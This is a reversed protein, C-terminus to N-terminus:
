WWLLGIFTSFKGEAYDSKTELRWSSVYWKCNLLFRLSSHISLPIPNQDIDLWNSFFFFFFDRFSYRSGASLFYSFNFVLGCFCMQLRCHEQICNYPRNICSVESTNKNTEELSNVYKEESCLHMDTMLFEFM